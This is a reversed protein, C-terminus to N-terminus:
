EACPAAEWRFSRCLSMLYVAHLLANAKPHGRRWFKAKIDDWLRKLVPHLPRNETTSWRAFPYDAEIFDLADAAGIKTASNIHSPSLPM